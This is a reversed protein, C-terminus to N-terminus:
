CAEYNRQRQQTDVMQALGVVATAVAVVSAAVTLVGLAATAGAGLSVATAGSGSDFVSVNLNAQANANVFGIQENYNTGGEQFSLSIWDDNGAGQDNTNNDDGNTRSQVIPYTRQNIKWDTIQDELEQPIIINNYAVYWGLKNFSRIPTIM